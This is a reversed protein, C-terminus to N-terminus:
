TATSSGRATPTTSRTPWTASSGSPRRSTSGSSTASGSCPGARQRVPLRDLVPGDDCGADYVAVINPHELRAAARAERFFRQMVREGPDAQKLVKLAVDRDLRPDYAQYVQGFGGDGLLERLQFRGLTGLSGKTWTETWRHRRTPRTASPRAAPHLRQDADGDREAPQRDDRRLAPLADPLRGADDPTLEVSRLCDGCVM